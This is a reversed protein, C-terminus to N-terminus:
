TSIAKQAESIFKEAAQAITSREFIVDDYVRQFTSKATGAGKPPPPPAPELKTAVSQEFQFGVAPPGTLTGGVQERIQANAPLGRSMGLIKGAELDNLLFNILKAAEPKHGSQKSISFMMAPKAYQGLKGTDTPFVSLKLERGMIEWSKATFGSDYGFGASAKKQTVPDNAQSGDM